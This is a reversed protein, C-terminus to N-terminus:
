SKEELGEVVQKHFGSITGCKCLFLIISCAYANVAAIGLFM